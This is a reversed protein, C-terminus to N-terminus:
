GMAVTKVGGKLVQEVVARRIYRGILVEVEEGPEVGLLAQAIPSHENITGNSADPQGKSITLQMTRKDDTLYRVRVTDGVVVGSPAFEAIKAAPRERIEEIHPRRPSAPPVAAGDETSPAMKQNPQKVFEAERAKLFAIREVIAKRLKEAERQPNNFWDTSWIRHLKWGLHELVEQRLRDRDRASKASHYSAGDCEVGLIFGHPWDAHRIGIDIFYGAVGVQPVPICGMSKIQEIVFM